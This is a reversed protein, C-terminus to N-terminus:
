NGQEQNEQNNNKRLKMDLWFPRCSQREINKQQHAQHLQGFQEASLLEKIAFINNIRLDVLQGHINKIEAAFPAISERTTAANNLEAQMQQQKARLKEMLAEMQQRQSQRLAKIKEKQEDSLGLKAAIADFRAENGARNQGFKSNEGRGGQPGEGASLPVAPLLALSMAAIIGVLGSAHTIKKM